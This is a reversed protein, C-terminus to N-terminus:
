RAIPRSPSRYGTATNSSRAASSLRRSSSRTSTPDSPGRAVTADLERSGWNSVGIARALGHDYAHELADWQEAAAPTPWHILFLDVHDM